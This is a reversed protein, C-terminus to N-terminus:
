AIDDMEQDRGLLHDNYARGLRGRDDVSICHDLYDELLIRRFRHLHNDVRDLPFLLCALDEALDVLEKFVEIDKDRLSRMRKELIGKIEDEEVSRGALFEYVLSGSVIRWGGKDRALLLEEEGRDEGAKGERILRLVFKQKVLAREGTLSISAGSVELSPAYPNSLEKKISGLALEAPFFSDVDLRDDRGDLVRDDRRRLLVEARALLEDRLEVALMARPVDVSDLLDDRVHEADARRLQLRLRVFLPVM